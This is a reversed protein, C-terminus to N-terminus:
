DIFRYYYYYDNIFLLILPQTARVQLIEIIKLKTDMVLPYAENKVSNNKHQEIVSPNSNSPRCIGPAGLALGTMVAGMDGICKYVGGEASIHFVCCPFM